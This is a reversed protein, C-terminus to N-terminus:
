DVDMHVYSGDIAYAYRVEPQQRVLALTRASTWGRICFDMAKGSLHRSNKASGSLEDNHAQCRVTSSPNMPAGAAERVKDALRMLRETPEVPFGGCRGCPCAIGTEERQFYRIQGWWDPGESAQEIREPTEGSTIVELIRAATRDGFVGDATLGWDRQFAETAARSQPGFAGDIAGTYYGLYALLCQKQRATM